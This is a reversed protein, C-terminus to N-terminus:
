HTQKTPDDESVKGLGSQLTKQKHTDSFFFLFFFSLCLSNHYRMSSRTGRNTFFAWNPVCSMTSSRRTNSCSRSGILRCVSGKWGRRVFLFSFLFTKPEKEQNEHRLLFDFLTGSLPGKSPVCCFPCLVCSFICLQVHATSTTDSATATVTTSAPSHGTLSPRLHPQTGQKPSKDFQM